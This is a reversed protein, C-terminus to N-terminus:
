SSAVCPVSICEPKTPSFSLGGHLVCPTRWVAPSSSAPLASAVSCLAPHAALSNPSEKTSLLQQCAAPGMTFLSVLFLGEWQTHEVRTEAGRLALSGPLGPVLVSDLERWSRLRKSGSFAKMVLRSFSALPFSSTACGWPWSSGLLWGFQASGRHGAQRPWSSPGAGLSGVPGPTVPSASRVGAPPMLAAQRGLASASGLRLCVPEMESGTLM